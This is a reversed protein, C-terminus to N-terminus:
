ALTKGGNVSLKQGNIFSANESALFAVADAINSPVGIHGLPVGSLYDDFGAEVLHAHREVPIFGPAILNVTIGLPGLENAWSRTLGSM